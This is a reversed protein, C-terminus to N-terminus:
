HGTKSRVKKEGDKLEFTFVYDLRVPVPVTVVGDGECESNKSVSEPFTCLAAGLFSWESVAAIVAKGFADSTHLASDSCVPADVIEVQNVAGEETVVFSACLDVSIDQQDKVDPYEPNRTSIPTAMIFLQDDRIEYREAGLPIIM